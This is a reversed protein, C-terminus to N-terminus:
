KNKEQKKPAVFVPKGTLKQIEHEFLAEDSHEDSLHLLHIEQVESMDTSKFFDCLTHLGMHSELLRKKRTFNLDPPLLDLSYNSEIAIHTLKKFQWKIFYTDTAFLLKNEGNAILFGVIPVDHELTFPLITLTKIKFQKLPEIIHVRHGSVGWHQKVDELCYCDVGHKVAQGIYKSHDGHRHSVLVCDFDTKFGGCRQIESWPIGIEILIKTDGDTLVYCNGNSSSAYSQFDFM